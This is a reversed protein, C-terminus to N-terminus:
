LVMPLSRFSKLELHFQYCLYGLFLQCLAKQQSSDVSYHIVERYATKKIGALIRWAQLGLDDSNGSSCHACSFGGQPAVMVPGLAEHIKQDCFVCAQLRPFIGQDLFLKGLFFLLQILPHFANDNLGKELFFVGNSLVGFTNNKTDDGGLLDDEQVLKQIIEFFLCMLSLGQFNERIKKPAWLLSWEKASYPGESGRSRGLEVALMHGLDALSSKSRKKAGLAGYFAVSIKKGSRLLLNGIFHKDGFRVKSILLGEVKTQM